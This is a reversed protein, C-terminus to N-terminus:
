FDAELCVPGLPGTSKPSSVLYTMCTSVHRRLLGKHLPVSFAQCSRIRGSFHALSIKAQFRFSVLFQGQVQVKVQVQGNLEPNPNPNTEGSHLFITPENKQYDAM